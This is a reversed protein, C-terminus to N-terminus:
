RLRGQLILGCLREQVFARHKLSNSLVLLEKTAALPRYIAWPGHELDKPVKISSKFFLKFCILM